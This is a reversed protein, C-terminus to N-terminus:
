DGDNDDYDREEPEFHQPLCPIAGQMFAAWAQAEPESPFRAVVGYATTSPNFQSVECCNVSLQPWVVGEARSYLWEGTPVSQVGLVCHDLLAPGGSTDGALPILLPVRQTGTSRGITGVVDNEEMWAQGTDTDGYVLRVPQRAERLMDLLSRLKRPTDTHFHTKPTTDM